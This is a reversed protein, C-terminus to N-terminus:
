FFEAFIWSYDAVFEFDVGSAFVGADEDFNLFLKSRKVFVKPTEYVM